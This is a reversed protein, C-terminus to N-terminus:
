SAMEQEVPQDNKQCFARAAEAFARGRAEFDAFQDFSAAAPSLLVVPEPAPDLAADTGALAIATMLDAAITHPVKQSLTASFRDAAEGILYAKAIKPFYDALGDIGDAKAQGGAIWYIPEFAALARAAAEGNTAKSDNVFLVRGNSAVTEMRHELGPFSAMASLIADDGLGLSRCILFAFAANQWNHAGRLATHAALPIPADAGSRAVLNGANDILFDASADAESAGTQYAVAILEPADGRLEGARQLLSPEDVGVIRVSGAGQNRFIRAKAERYGDMGGHRDLHDASLNIWVAVDASFRDLLDLQYSSLELVYIPGAGDGSVPSDLDLASRGINGGVQVACGNANLIHGALATTTSKGNTGTIGVFRARGQGREPGQACDPGHERYLLEIDCVIEAGASRALGVIEHPEPHTFPVGPALVLTSVEAWPWEAIPLITAGLAVAADRADPRDDWAWVTQAGGAIAAAITALGSRALGFVGLSCGSLHTLAIAM